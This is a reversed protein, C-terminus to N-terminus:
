FRETWHKTPDEKDLDKKRSVPNANIGYLARHEAPPYLSFGERGVKGKEVVLDRALLEEDPIEFYGCLETMKLTNGDKKKKDEGEWRFCLFVYLDNDGINYCQKGNRTGAISKCFSGCKLTSSIGNKFKTKNFSLSKFQIKKFDDTNRKSSMITSVTKYKYRFKLKSIVLYLNGSFYYNNIVRCIYGINYVFQAAKKSRSMCMLLLPTM